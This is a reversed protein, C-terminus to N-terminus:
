LKIAANLHWRSYNQIELGVEDNWLLALGGRKRISDVVFFNSAKAKNEGTEKPV